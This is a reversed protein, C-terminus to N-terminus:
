RGHYDELAVDIADEGNWKFTVRWNRSVLVAFTNARDGSLRDVQAAQREARGHGLLPALLEARDVEEVDDVEGKEKVDDEDDDPDEDPDLELPVLTAVRLASGCEDCEYPDGIQIDELDDDDIEIEADCEPCTAM